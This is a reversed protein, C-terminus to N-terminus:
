SFHLILNILSCVFRNEHHIHVIKIKNSQYNRKFVYCSFLCQNSQLFHIIFLKMIGNHFLFLFENSLFFCSSNLHLLLIYLCLNPFRSLSVERTHKYFYIKYKRNLVMIITFCFQAFIYVMFAM